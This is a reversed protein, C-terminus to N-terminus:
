GGVVAEVAAKAAALVLAYEECRPESCGAFPCKGGRVKCPACYVRDIASEILKANPM